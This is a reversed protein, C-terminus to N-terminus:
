LTRIKNMLNVIRDRFDNDIVNTVNGELKSIEEKELMNKEILALKRFSLNM